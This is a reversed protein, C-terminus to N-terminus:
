SFTRPDTHLARVREWLERNVPCDVGYTSGTRVVYGSLYDIETQVARQTTTKNNDDDDVLVDQLMSSRNEATDRLVTDVYAHLETELQDVIKEKDKTKIIATTTKSKESYCYYVQAVERLISPYYFSEFNSVVSQLEGNRCQHLATLPNIVCNAALKYWLLRQLEDNDDLGRCNLGAMDILTPLGGLEKPVHMVINGFGAHVVHQQIGDEAQQNNNNNNHNNDPPERYVGHTTIALHITSKNANSHQRLLETLEEAVALAGNCFVILRTASQDSSSSSSTSTSSLRDVISRVAEVASFAKTALFLNRIPRRRSSSSSSSSQITECPVHVIRPRRRCHQQQQQPDVLFTQRLCVSLSSRAHHEPKDRLLLKVPYSPFTFRISAALLLGISGAGLIHIPEQFSVMNHSMKKEVAPSPRNIKRASRDGKSSAPTVTITGLSRSTHRVVLIRITSGTSTQEQRLVFRFGLFLVPKNGASYSCFQRWPSCLQRRSVLLFPGMAAKHRGRLPRSKIRARSRTVRSQISREPERQREAGEQSATAAMEDICQLCGHSKFLRQM